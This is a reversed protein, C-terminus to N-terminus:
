SRRALKLTLPWRIVRKEGDPWVALLEARLADFQAPGMKAVMKSTASWTSVYGCLEDRTWTETMEIAPSPIAPWPLVLDRYGNEVHAREAPWFRGVVHHYFHQVIPEAAADDVHLVGYSVLAVLAGPVAVREVEAIFRPWDFWHAAQAAVVLSVSHDPLGSAEAAGVRYTARAHPFAQEIQARSPDTGIVDMHEALQTTLQGSGCGVDWATGRPALSALLRSLEAPYSPRYAAYAAAVSSFHDAFTM